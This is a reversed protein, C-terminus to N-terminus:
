DECEKGRLSRHNCDLVVGGIASTFACYILESPHHYYMESDSLIKIMNMVM